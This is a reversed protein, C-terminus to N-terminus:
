FLNLQQNSKRTTYNVCHEGHYQKCESHCSVYHQQMGCLCQREPSLFLCKRYNQWKDNM